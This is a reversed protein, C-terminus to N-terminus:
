SGKGTKRNGMIVDNRSNVFKTFVDGTDTYFVVKRGKTGGV